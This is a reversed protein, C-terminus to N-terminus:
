RSQKMLAVVWLLGTLIIPVLVRNYMSIAVIGRKKVGRKLMENLPARGGSFLMVLIFVIDMRDEKALRGRRPEDPPSQKVVNERRGIGTNM